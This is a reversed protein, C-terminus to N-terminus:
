VQFLRPHCPSDRLLNVHWRNEVKGFWRELLSTQLCRLGPIFGLGLRKTLRSGLERPRIDLRLRSRTPVLARPDDCSAHGFISPEIRTDGRDTASSQVLTLHAAKLLECGDSM